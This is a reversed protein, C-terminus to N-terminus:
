YVTTFCSYGIIKGILKKFDKFGYLLKKRRQVEAKAEEDNLEVGNVKITTKHRSIAKKVSAGRILSLKEM